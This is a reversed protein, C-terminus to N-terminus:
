FKWKNRKKNNRSRVQSKKKNMTPLIYAKLNQNSIEVDLDDGPQVWNIKMEIENWKLELCHMGLILWTYQQRIFWFLIFCVFCCVCFGLGWWLITVIWFFWLKVNIIGPYLRFNRLISLFCSFQKKTPPLPAPLRTETWINWTQSLQKSHETSTNNM